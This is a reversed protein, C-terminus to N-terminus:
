QPKLLEFDPHRRYHETIVITRALCEAATRVASDITKFNRLTGRSSYLGHQVGPNDLMDEVWLSHTGDLHCFIEVIAGEKECYAKFDVISLQEVNNEM